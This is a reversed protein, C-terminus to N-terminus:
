VTLLLLMEFSSITENAVKDAIVRMAYMSSQEGTENQLSAVHRLWSVQVCFSPYCEGLNQVRCVTFGCITVSKVEEAWLLESM